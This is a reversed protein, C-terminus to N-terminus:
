YSIQRYHSKCTCHIFTWQGNQYAFGADPDNVGSILIKQYDLPLAKSELEEWSLEKSPYKKFVDMVPDTLCEKQRKIEEASYNIKRIHPPLADGFKGSEVIQLNRLQIVQDMNMVSDAVVIIQDWFGDRDPQGNIGGKRGVRFRYSVGKQFIDESIIWPVAKLEQFLDITLPNGIIISHKDGIKEWHGQEKKELILWDPEFSHNGFLLFYVCASDTNGTLEITGEGSEQIVQHLGPKDIAQAGVSIEFTLLVLVLFVKNM